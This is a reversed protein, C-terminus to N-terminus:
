QLEVRTRRFFFNTHDGFFPPGMATCRRNEGPVDIGLAKLRDLTEVRSEAEDNGAPLEQAKQFIQKEPKREVGAVGGGGDRFPRLQPQEPQLKQGAFKEM